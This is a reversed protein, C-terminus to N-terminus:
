SLDNADKAGKALLDQAKAKAAAYLSPGQVQFGEQRSRQEERYNIEASAEQFSKYDGSWDRQDPPTRAFGGFSFRYVSERKAERGCRPCAAVGGFGVRRDFVECCSFTYVPM